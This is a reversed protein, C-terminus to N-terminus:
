GQLLYHWVCLVTTAEPEQRLDHGTEQWDIYGPATLVPEWDAHDNNADSKAYKVKAM